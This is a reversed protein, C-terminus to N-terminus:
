IQPLEDDQHELVRDVVEEPLEADILHAEDVVVGRALGLTSRGKGKGKGKEIEEDSRSQNWAYDEGGQSGPKAYTCKLVRSPM